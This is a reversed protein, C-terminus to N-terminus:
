KWKWFTPLFLMLVTFFELRGAIMCFILVIKGLAPIFAFNELPGVAGLGPGVNGIASVTASLATVMDLGLGSMILFATVAVSFYIISMGITKTVIGEPVIKGGLKLPIVATPNFVMKIQRYAYKALVLLRVVKLAGSTSGASAGTVMLFLLIAKSLPPWTNFDTACFGTTTMISATQFSGYRIAEGISMGMNIILDLNILLAAGFLLLMYFRLEPNKFLKGPQRRWLLFYYLGFNVGTAVMFFLVIGEVLLSNYAAISINYAAFGGSPITSLTVVLADFGPLGAALLLIMEIATMALYILWLIKATDRMRSTLREEQKGGTWEAEALRAAGIGLFPLLAVFLMIIGMGGLWQTLSRWILLGQYQGDINTFVTAGTTSFGSVSEFFADLFNPLAGTLTYPIAGVLSICVWGIAVLTVAERRSLNTERPKVFRWLILGAVVSFALSIAFATAAESEGHFFSWLLPLLMTAGIIALILGLYHLIANIRM